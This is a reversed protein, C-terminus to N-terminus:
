KAGAVVVPYVLVWFDFMRSCLSPKSLESSARIDPGLVFDSSDDEFVGADVFGDIIPKTMAHYNNPDRVRRDPFKVVVLVWAKDFWPRGSAVAMMRATNRVHAVKSSRVNHHQRDNMSLTQDDTFSMKPSVWAPNVPVMAGEFDVVARVGSRVFSEADELMSM